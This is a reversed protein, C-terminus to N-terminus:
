VRFLYKYYCSNNFNQFFLAEFQSILMMPEYCRGAPAAAASGGEMEFNSFILAAPPV